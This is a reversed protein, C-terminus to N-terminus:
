RLFYLLTYKLSKLTTYRNEIVWTGTICLFFYAKKGKEFILLISTFKSFNLYNLIIIINREIRKMGTSIM